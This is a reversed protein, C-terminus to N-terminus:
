ESLAASDTKPDELLFRHIRNSPLNSVPASSPQNNQPKEFQRQHSMATVASLDLKKEPKLARSTLPERNAVSHESSHM